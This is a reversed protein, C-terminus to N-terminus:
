ATAACHEQNTGVCSAYAMTHAIYNQEYVGQFLHAMPGRAFLAVDKGGHTESDLPVASQQIYDDATTDVDRIDPHKNDTIKHGPGNGYMLTTYPLLDTAFLPSKGLISLTEEENTLALGRAVADDLAVAEHLAMSARSDHHGRDIRGGMLYDTKAPDVADFETKNWVYRAVKGEKMSLWEDILNRNDKRQGQASLDTPYEPDPFGKPTM